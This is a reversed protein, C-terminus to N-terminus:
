EQYRVPISPDSAGHYLILRRVQAIFPNLLAPDRTNSQKLASIQSAAISSM